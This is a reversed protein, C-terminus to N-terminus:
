SLCISGKLHPTSKQFSIGPEHVPGYKNPPPPPLCPDHPWLGSCTHPYPLPERVSRSASVVEMKCLSHSALFLNMAVIIIQVQLQQTASDISFIKNRKLDPLAVGGGGWIHGQHFGPWICHVIYTGDFLLM